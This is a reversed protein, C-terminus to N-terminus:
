HKVLEKLVEPHSNAINLLVKAPGEPTRRGQEWNRLTNVSINLLTAFEVQTLNFKSRIDKANPEDIYFTRSAEKKNNLIEKAEKTSDLLKNFLEDQM